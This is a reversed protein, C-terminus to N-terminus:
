HLLWSGLSVTMSIVCLNIYTRRSAFFRSMLSWTLRKRNAATVCAIAYTWWQRPVTKVSCLPRRNQFNSGICKLRSIHTLCRMLNYYQRSNVDMNWEGFVVNVRLLPLNKRLSKRDEVKTVRAELGTPSILFEQCHEGQVRRTRRMADCCSSADDDGRITSETDWAVSFGQASCLKYLISSEESSTRKTRDVFVRQGMANTSEVTFNALQINLAFPREPFSM